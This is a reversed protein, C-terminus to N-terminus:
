RWMSLWIGLKRVHNPLCFAWKRTATPASPAGKPLALSAQAHSTENKFTESLTAEGSSLKKIQPALQASSWGAITSYPFCSLDSIAVIALWVNETLSWCTLNSNLSTGDSIFHSAFNEPSSLLAALYGHEKAFTCSLSNCSLPCLKLLLGWLLHLGHSYLNLSSTALFTVCNLSFCPLGILAAWSCVNRVLTHLWIALRLDLCSNSGIRPGTIWFALHSLRWTPFLQQPCQCLNSKVWTKALAFIGVLVFDTKWNASSLEKRLCKFARRNLNFHLFIYLLIKRHNLSFLFDDAKSNRNVPSSVLFNQSPKIYRIWAWISSPLM